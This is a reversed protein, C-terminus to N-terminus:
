YYVREIGNEKDNIFPREMKLKGDKHYLRELGNKNNNSYPTAAELVGSEYYCKLLGNMKNNTFVAEKRLKGSEYYEKRVGIEKGNIVPIEDSVKGNAYYDKVIGNITDNTFIAESTLKGSTYRHALGCKKGNKYISLEYSPANTDQTIITLSDYYEVWKGEKLGNVTENKAEAKNTFSSQQQECAILIICSLILFFSAKM